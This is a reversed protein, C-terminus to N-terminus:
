RHRYMLVLLGVGHLLILVLMTYDVVRLVPLLSVGAGFMGAGLFAVRFGFGGGRGLVFDAARAGYESWAIMTTLALILVSIALLLDAGRQMALRSAWGLREIGAGAVYPGDMFPAVEAPHPDYLERLSGQPEGHPHVAVLTKREDFPGTFVTRELGKRGLYVSSSPFRLGSHVEVEFEYPPPLLYPGTYAAWRDAKAFDAIDRRGSLFRLNGDVFKSTVPIRMDQSPDTKHRLVAWKTEALFRWPPTQYEGSALLKGFEMGREPPRMQMQLRAGIPADFQERAVMALPPRPEGNDLYPGRFGPAAVTKLLSLPRRPDPDPEVAAYHVGWRAHTMQVIRAEFQYDGFVLYPGDRLRSMMYLDISSDVPRLRVWPREDPGFVENTLPIRVDYAAHQGRQRDADRFVLERITATEEALPLLIETQGERVEIKSGRPNARMVMPYVHDERLGVADDGKAVADVPLIV